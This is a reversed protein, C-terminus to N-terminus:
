NVTVSKVPSSTCSGKGDQITIDAKVSYTGAASYTHSVSVGEVSPTGDGFTWKVSKLTKTGTYEVSFNIKKSDAADPTHTVKEFLSEGICDIGKEIDDKGCSVSLISLVAIFLIAFKNKMINFKLHNKFINNECLYSIYSMRKKIIIMFFGIKSWM